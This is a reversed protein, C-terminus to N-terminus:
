RCDLRARERDAPTKIRQEANPFDQSLKRLTECAEQPQDLAALSLGLKLLMDPAKSSKPYRQYGELYAKAARPYDQRTYFSEGLWFNANGALGHDPHSNLFAQFATEAEPLQGRRLLSYAAEYQEAPTAPAAPEPATPAPESNLAVSGGGIAGGGELDRFRLDSDKVFRDLRETMQRNSFQLDEIQGTLNLLQRELEAVKQSLDALLVSGGSANAPAPLPSTQGAAAGAGEFLPSKGDFVRRQVAQLQKEVATIRDNIEARTQAHAYPADLLLALLSVLMMLALFSRPQSVTM